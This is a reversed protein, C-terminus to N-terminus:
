IHSQVRGIATPGDGMRSVSVVPRAEQSELLLQQGIEALRLPLDPQRRHAFGGTEVPPVGEIVQGGVGVQGGELGM